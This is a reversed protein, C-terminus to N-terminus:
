VSTAVKDNDAYAGMETPNEVLFQNCTILLTLLKGISDLIVPDTMISSLVEGDYKETVLNFPCNIYSSLENAIIHNIESDDYGATKLLTKQVERYANHIANYMIIKLKSNDDDEVKSIALVRKRKAQTSANNYKGPM